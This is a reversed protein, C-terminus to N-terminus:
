DHVIFIACRFDQPPRAQGEREDQCQECQQGVVPHHQACELGDRFQVPNRRREDDFLRRQVAEVVGRALLRRVVRLAQELEIRARRAAEEAIHEVAEEDRRRDCNKKMM